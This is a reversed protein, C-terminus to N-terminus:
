ADIPSPGGDDRGNPRTNARADVDATAQTQLQDRETLATRPRSTAGDVVVPM